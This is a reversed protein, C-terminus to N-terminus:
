RLNTFNFPLSGNLLQLLQLKRRIGHPNSKEQVVNLSPIQLLDLHDDMQFHNRLEMKLYPVVWSCLNGGTQIKLREMDGDELRYKCVAHQPSLDYKKWIDVAVKRLKARCPTRVTASPTVGIYNFTVVPACKREIGEICQHEHKSHDRLPMRLKCGRKANKCPIIASDIINELGRSHNYGYCGISTYCLPCLKKMESCCSSCSLHGKECQIIPSCLPKFCTSCYLMDLNTLMVKLRGDLNPIYEIRVKEMEEAFESSIVKKKVCVSLSLDRWLVILILLEAMNKFKMISSSYSM